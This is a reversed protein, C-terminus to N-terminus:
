IRWKGSISNILTVTSNPFLLAFSNTWSSAGKTYEMRLKSLTGVTISDRLTQASHNHGSICKGYSLEMNATTGRSGNHGFMGHASLQYGYKKYDQDLELWTINKINFNKEIYYQLPNKKDRILAQALELSLIINQVDNIYRGETIFRNLFIDHNSRAIVFEINPFRERWRKLENGTYNLESELTKAHLPRNAKSAMDKELHHSISYGEFLDHFIICQPKIIDTVEWFAQIATEEQFGCHIDGAVLVAKNKELSKIKLGSYYKDLDYFGGKDDSLIQRVHFIEKNEIELILGGIKHDQNAIIGIRNSAYNPLTIVGTSWLMHPIEKNSVAVTQLNQKPSAIILSTTKGGIRNISTLPQVQQPNLMFDVAKINNNFKIESTFLDAYEIIEPSYSEDKKYTGRMPLIVLKANNIKCYTQVSKFFEKDLEAGAIVATIFYRRKNGKNSEDKVINFDERTPGEETSIGMEEKVIDLFDTFTGFESELQLKTFNGKKLYFDRKLIFNKNKELEKLYIKKADEIIDERKPKFFSEILNIFIKWSGFHRSLQSRTYKSYKTYDDRFLEFGHDKKREIEYIKKAEEILEEKSIEKIFPKRGM